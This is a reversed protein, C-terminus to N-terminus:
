LDIAVAKPPERISVVGESGSYGVARCCWGTRITKINEVLRDLMSNPAANNLASELAAQLRVSHELRRHTLELQRKLEKQKALSLDLDAGHLSPTVADTEESLEELVPMLQNLKDVMDLLEELAEQCKRRMLEKEREPYAVGSNDGKFSELNTALDADDLLHGRRTTLLTLVERSTIPASRKLNTTVASPEVNEGSATM